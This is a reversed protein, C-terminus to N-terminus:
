FESLLAEFFKISDQTAKLIEEKSSLTDQAILIDNCYQSNNSFMITPYKATNLAEQADEVNNEDDVEKAKLAAIQGEVASIGKRAIKAALAENDDGKLKAIVQQIFLKGKTMETKTSM